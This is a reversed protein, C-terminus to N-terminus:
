STGPKGGKNRRRHTRPTPAASETSGKAATPAPAAPEPASTAIDPAASPPTTGNPGPGYNKKEDELDIRGSVYDVLFLKAVDPNPDILALCYERARAADFPVPAGADDYVGKWDIIGLEALFRCFLAEAEGEVVTADDYDPLYEGNATSPKIGAEAMTKQLDMRTRLEERVRAQATSWMATTLPRVKVALEGALDIWYPDKPLNLILM